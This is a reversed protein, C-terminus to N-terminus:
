KRSHKNKRSIYGEKIQSHPGEKEKAGVKRGTRVTSKEGKKMWTLMRSHSFTKTYTAKYDPQHITVTSVFCERKVKETELIGNLSSGGGSMM